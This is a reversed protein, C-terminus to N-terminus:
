CAPKVEVITWYRNLQFDDLNYKRALKHRAQFKSDAEIIGYETFEMNTFEFKKM